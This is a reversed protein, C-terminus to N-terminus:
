QWLERIRSVRWGADYLAVAQAIRMSDRMSYDCLAGRGPHQKVADPLVQCAIKVVRKTSVGCAEAIQQAIM